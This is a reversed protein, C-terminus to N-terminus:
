HRWLAEPHHDGKMRGDNFCHGIFLDCKKCYVERVITTTYSNYPYVTINLTNIESGDEVPKRFSPWVCPGDWKDESSYLPALCRSCHYIGSEWHHRYREGWTVIDSVLEMDNEANVTIPRCSIRHYNELNDVTIREYLAYKKALHFEAISDKQNQTVAVKYPAYNVVEYEM